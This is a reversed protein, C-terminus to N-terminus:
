APYLYQLIGVDVSFGNEWEKTYGITPDLELGTHEGDQLDVSSAFLSLYFGTDHNANLTTQVAPRRRSASTGRSLYDTVATVNGSLAFGAYKTQEPEKAAEEASLAVAPLSLLGLMSVTLIKKM